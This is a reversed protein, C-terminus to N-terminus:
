RVDVWSELGLLAVGDESFTEVRLDGGSDVAWRVWGEPIRASDVGTGAGTALSDLVAVAAMTSRELREARGLRETAALVWGLAGVVAVELLVLAVVVEVLTFGRRM